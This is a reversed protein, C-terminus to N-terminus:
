IATELWRTEINQILPQQHCEECPMGQSEGRIDNSGVRALGTQKAANMRKQHSKTIGWDEHSSKSIPGTIKKTVVEKKLNDGKLCRECFYPFKKGRNIENIVEETKM